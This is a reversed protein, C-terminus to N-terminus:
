YEYPDSPPAIPTLSLVELVPVGDGYEDVDTLDGHWIAEVAVWADDDPVFPPDALTVQLPFADSACCDMLFRTLRFGRTVEPDPASFGVLLFPVGIIEDPAFYSYGVFDYLSMALVGSSPEVTAPLEAAASAEPEAVVATGDDESDSGASGTDMEIVFEDNVVGTVPAEPELRPEAAEPVAQTIRDFSEPVEAFSVRNPVRDAAAAAGLPPPALALAAVFVVLLAGVGQAGHRHAADQRNSVTFLHTVGAGILVLGSIILPWRLGPKVYNSYTGTWTSAIAALGVLMTIASSAFPTM